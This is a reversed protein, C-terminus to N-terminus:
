ASPLAMGRAGQVHAGALDANRMLAGSFNSRSIDAFVMLAHRLDAGSFDAGKAVARGLDCPLMRDEGILLPGM